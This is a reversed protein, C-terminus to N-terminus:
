YYTNTSVISLIIGPRGVLINLHFVEFTTKQKWLGKKAKFPMNTYALVIQYTQTSSSFKETASFKLSCFGIETIKSAEWATTKQSPPLVLERFIVAHNALVSKVLQM